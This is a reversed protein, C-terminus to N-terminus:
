YGQYFAILNLAQPMCWNCKHWPISNGSVPLPTHSLRPALHTHAALNVQNKARIVDNCGTTTQIKNYRTDQIQYNAHRQCRKSDPVQQQQLHILKENIKTNKPRLRLPPQRKILYIFTAGAGFLQLQWVGANLPDIAMPLCPLEVKRAMWGAKIMKAM